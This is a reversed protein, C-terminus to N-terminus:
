TGRPTSSPAWSATRTPSRQGDILVADKEGTVLASTVLFGQPSATVVEVALPSQAQAPSAFTALAVLSLAAALRNM